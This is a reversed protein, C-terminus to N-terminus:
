TTGGGEDARKQTSLSTNGRQVAEETCGLAMSREGTPLSFLVQFTFHLCERVYRAVNFFLPPLVTGALQSESQVRKQPEDQVVGGARGTNGTKWNNSWVCM